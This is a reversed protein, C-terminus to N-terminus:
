PSSTRWTTRSLTVTQGPRVLSHAQIDICRYFADDVSADHVARAALQVSVTRNGRVAQGALGVLAVAAVICSVM